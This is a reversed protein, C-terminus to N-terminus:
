IQSKLFFKFLGLMNIVNKCGVLRETAKKYRLNEKIKKGDITIRLTQKPSNKIKECNGTHANVWFLMPELQGM